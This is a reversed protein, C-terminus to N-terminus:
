QKKNKGRLIFLLAQMFLYPFSHSTSYSELNSIVEATRQIRIM